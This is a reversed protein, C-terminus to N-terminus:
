ICLVIPDLTPSLTVQNQDQTYSMVVDVAGSFLDLANPLQLLRRRRGGPPAAAAGRKMNYFVPFVGGCTPCYRQMNSRLREAIANRVQSSGTLGSQPNHWKGSFSNVQEETSSAPFRARLTVNIIDYPSGRIGLINGLADAPTVGYNVPPV